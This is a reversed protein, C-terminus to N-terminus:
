GTSPVRVRDLVKLIAGVSNMRFIRRLAEGLEQRWQPVGPGGVDRPM